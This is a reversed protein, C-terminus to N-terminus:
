GGAPATKKPTMKQSSVSESKSLDSEIREIKAQIQDLHLNLHSKDAKVGDPYAWAGNQQSMVNNRNGHCEHTHHLVGIKHIPHARPGFITLTLRGPGEVATVIAAKQNEPKVLARDYWVVVTGVPPTPTPNKLKAKEAALYDKLDDSM